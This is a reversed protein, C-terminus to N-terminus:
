SNLIQSDDIESLRIFINRYSGPYNTFTATTDTLALTAESNGSQFYIMYNGSGNYKFINQVTINAGQNYVSLYYNKGSTLSGDLAQPPLYYGASTAVQTRSTIINIEPVNVNVENYGDVGSPPTYTGNTNVNLTELVAAPVFVNVEDYGDVGSPPTYTGNTDVNLPELVAAPVSVSVEDFGDVGSPPTYTGNTNVNLLQLVPGPVSVNVEDFGDVGSPPTYTGNATVNLTETIPERGMTRIMGSVAGELMDGVEGHLNGSLNM